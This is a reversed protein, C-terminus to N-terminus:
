DQKSSLSLARAYIERKPRGSAKAVAEAADRLSLSEMAQILLRDTEEEGIEAIAGPPAVVIVVEGKPPGQTEFHVALEGLPARRVEEYLKTIERAMAAERDGFVAHMDGLSGALRKASEFFILTAPIAALEALWKKRASKKSPPFGAFLFRDAPLGSLALAALPASPGPLITFPINNEICARTLRYGPDSILPTGADTVLAVVDGNKLREIIMPRVRAANHEHYSLTPTSIDHRILLKKTVRTDECIIVDAGALMDLARLTIDAMNGIPTAVLYLGPDPRSPKSGGGAGSPESCNKPHSKTGQKAGTKNKGSKIGSV